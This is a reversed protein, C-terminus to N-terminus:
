KAFHEGDFKELTAIEEVSRRSLKTLQKKPCGLPVLACVAFNDPIEFLKKINPEKSIPLTTISGGFGLRRAALLVNWVFPYISAGSIVGIRDLEKDMSAVCALDVLFVLVVQADIYQNILMRPAEAQEIQESTVKTPVVTNSPSEGAKVQAVYKKTAPYGFNALELRADKDRVIIVRNGQRNGGSPAFRSNELIEYLVENPLFDETFERVAFTTRMVDFVDLASRRKDAVM